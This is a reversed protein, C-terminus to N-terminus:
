AALHLQLFTLVQRVVNTGARSDDVLDFAHAGAPYNILTLPLNRDLAGTVFRDISANMAPFQDRGARVVLLPLDSRLDDLTRGHVPNAFGFAKAADAVATSGDLDLLCGYEFVACTVPVDSDSMVASLATPVNGSVALVGLRRPDLQWERAHVGISILVDPLDAAPERATYTIAALGSAAISEAMSQTWGIDKYSRRRGDAITDAYGTVIVVGAAPGATGQALRYIDVVGDTETARYPLERRVVVEDMRPLRLQIRKRLFDGANTESM